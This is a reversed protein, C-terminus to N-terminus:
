VTTTGHFVGNQINLHVKKEMLCKACKFHTVHFIGTGGRADGNSRPQDKSPMVLLIFLLMHSM